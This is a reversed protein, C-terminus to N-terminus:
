KGTKLLHYGEDDQPLKFLENFSLDRSSEGAISLHIIRAELPDHGKNVRIRNFLYVSCGARSAPVDLTMRGDAPVQYERADITQVRIVYIQPSDAVLRRRYHGLPNVPPLRYVRGMSVFAIQLSLAVIGAVLWRRGFM